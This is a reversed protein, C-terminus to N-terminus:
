KFNIERIDKSFETHDFNPHNNKINQLIHSTEVANSNELALEYFSPIAQQM